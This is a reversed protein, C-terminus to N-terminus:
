PQLFFGLEQPATLTKTADYQRRAQRVAVIKNQFERALGDYRVLVNDLWYPGYERLWAERYMQSVRTTADRLDELRANTETIEALDNDVRDRDAQNQFADWYFQNIEQTFEIKMGLTDWRWASLIMDALTSQNAQAKAGNRYLSELAHEAGLRMEPAAPALRQMMRAGEPTFPDIWFLDDTENEVKIKALAQHGHDLNEMADRFTADGNRYFAWDYANKFADINSEGAQWGAAAGFVLAPWAMGYLSEGDDNWTTNLMGMAGLKQGDRVFSRINEFSADLNPWIQSWNNAGPAVIVRLGADRYPKIISEFSPRPDYDWPVAIMDKPLIDLLQPYKLAIDGWFMLQKHYPQLIASVKQMHELYVRGLGVEAVRAATQGHGLEFTEDGGVHLFPGPFLPVLDAYMAKIIVYSQEKTPTLVHGHPREAVDAYIEYKLMHHLHGFTQQEPLITVYRDQAYDVLAKIEQPTLAAEKPAVLPQSAFDFVHEMYLAFMNVKYAALTRIQRKMFDETPIPGRSIDDQVGRWEMSPWDRIAVAPCVLKGDDKRLLQRLTQVGYFLGQGTNAAVILHSKDSFLLYGQDGISDAKLGKAELFDKVSRDQLRALVITSRVQRTKEKSGTINVTLGSQDHIEEALTEAAIRDEAQHGFEVLIRTTPRVRFSGDHLQVEKPEPILKLPSETGPTEAAVFPILLLLVFPLLLFLVRKKM